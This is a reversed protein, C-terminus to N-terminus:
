TRWGHELDIPWKGKQYLTKSMLNIKSGHDALAVIPEELDGLKVVTEITTRAWHSTFFHSQSVEEREEDDNM